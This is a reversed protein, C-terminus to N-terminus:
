HARLTSATVTFLRATKNEYRGGVGVGGGGRAVYTLMGGGVGVGGM